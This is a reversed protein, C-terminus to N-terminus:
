KDEHRKEKFHNFWQPSKVTVSDHLFIYYDDVYNKYAYIYAGTDYSAHPTFDALINFNYKGRLKYIFEITDQQNPDTCMILVNENLNETTNLSDLLNTLLNTDNYTAIVIM